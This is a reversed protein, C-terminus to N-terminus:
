SKVGYYKVLVGLQTMQHVNAYFTFELIWEFQIIAM